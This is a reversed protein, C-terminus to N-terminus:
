AALYRQPDPGLQKIVHPWLTLQLWVTLKHQKTNENATVLQQVPKCLPAILCVGSHNAYPWANRLGCEAQSATTDM